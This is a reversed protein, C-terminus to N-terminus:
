TATGTGTLGQNDTVSVTVTYTGNDKYVHSLSFNMGSLALSQAGGGDGYDVTATWSTANPNTDTFSGNASYTDGENITVNSIQNITPANDVYRALAWDDYSGNSGFGAGLIKGDTQLVLSTFGNNNGTGLHTTIFGNTGFSTDLTGDANLRALAADYQNQDSGGIVIKGDTLVLARPYTINTGLGLVYGGSGFSTDLSGDQNHRIVFPNPTGSYDGTVVIKGDSQIVVSNSGASGLQNEIVTGNSGFNTDVSGDINFRVLYATGSSDGFIVIKGDSQLAAAQVRQFTGVQSHYIELGGNGFTQDYSGDSNYRVLTVYETVAGNKRLYGAAIIKGDPQLELANLTEFLDDGLPTAIIGSGGFSTDLSGNSNYRGITWIRPENENQGSGAVVIKGDSQIIVGRAVNDYGFDQTVTGNTGFSTDLSGDTNYRAIAWNQHGGNSNAGVAVAKGDSQLAVDIAYGESGFSTIVKGGSGFTSDLSFAAYSPLVYLFSSIVSLTLSFFGIKLFQEFRNRFFM